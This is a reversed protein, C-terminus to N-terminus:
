SYSDVTANTFRHIHNNLPTLITRLPKGNKKCLFHESGLDSSDQIKVLWKRLM